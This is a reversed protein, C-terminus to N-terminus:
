FGMYIFPPQRSLYYLSACTLGALFVSWAWNPRWAFFLQSFVYSKNEYSGIGPRYFRMLEMSNPLLYVVVLGGILAVLEAHGIEPLALVPSLMSTLLRGYTALDPARFLAFCPVMLIFFVVRGIAGRVVSSSNKKFKRFAKSSRIETEVLYWLGQLVGFLVFTARAGHWLAIIEFNLMIPLWSALSRAPLRAWGREVVFRTGWLSLPTYLYQAILRTLTIHWRRYFDIIGVAKFPSFFNFPLRISFLRAVGLALDAYGSFDFYLQLYFAVAGIWAASASLSVQSEAMSFTHDALPGLNDALVLKKFLGIAILAIGVEINRRVTRGFAPSQLQPQFERMYLIPGIILHPFFMVFLAYRLYGHMGGAFGRLDGMYAVVSKDRIYAEVLVSAQQFTYFSIGLPIAADVLSFGANGAMFAFRYKFWILTAFNFIQGLWFMTRRRVKCNDATVLIQRLALYNVTVAVALIALSTWGWTAYLLTSVLLLIGMGATTGFRRVTSYFAACILPLILLFFLPNTFAVFIDQPRNRGM